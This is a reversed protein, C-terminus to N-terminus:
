STQPPAAPKAVAGGHRDPSWRRLLAANSVVSVSSLAMAAAAITPSLLGFAALPVGVVNYIFAWFLNQRIKAWTAGAVDLAAAVLRPDPRMLTVAASELAVDSGTGVAIGVDAAALAPADNVGDGVMAVRRGEAKLAEVRAAKEEPRVPGAFDDVGARAAVAEAVAAADGTLMLTRVGRRRLAAVAEPTEARLPDAIGLVGIAVGDRAVAVATVAAAGLRALAPGLGATDARVRRMLAANGIAIEEGTVRATVGEGTVSRFDTAPAPARGQAEAAEVVARALPHQSLRQVSAALALLETEAVGPVPVIEVLRPRGETLTGTKDLIVTDVGRTRELAEIDKILIGARAAAGTGAVLATPTALGLACPCAIVLVSVAAVLADEFGQGFALWAAFTVLAIGIVAPVFVASVRDVLRQVPAKGTQAAEVLRTIRALTTDEGLATAEVVLSGEGNVTGATVRDGPSKEVPVSEGTVIAEDIAGHGERILGDVPVRDGPPVRVRDGLALAEVPVLEERGDKIRRASEPRLAMLARVAATTGAKARAELWKGFLVLTIIAASAEFYLPREVSGMSPMGAMVPEAPRLVQWLSFLFAATTGLVVLVDMNASGGRLAKFAGRYFRAGAIVQVPAALALQMLPPLHWALGFPAVVMPAVLPLTLAASFLVLVFTLRDAARRRAEAAEREARRLAPDEARPRATYGAREVAAVLAEPALGTGSVDARELALNVRAEGVGPVRSLVKEVRASCSACTMGGIDLVIPRDSGPLTLTTRRPPEVILGAPAQELPLSEATESM